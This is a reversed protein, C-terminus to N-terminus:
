HWLVLYITNILFSINNKTKIIGWYLPKLGTKTIYTFILDQGVIHLFTCGKRHCCLQNMSGRLILILRQRTRLKLFHLIFGLIRHLICFKIPVITFFASIKKLFIKIDKKQTTKTGFRKKPLKNVYSYSRLFKPGSKIWYKINM